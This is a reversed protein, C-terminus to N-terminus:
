TAQVPDPTVSEKIGRLQNTKRKGEAWLFIEARRTPSLKDKAQIYQYYLKDKPIPEGPKVFKVEAPSSLTDGDIVDLYHMGFLEFFQSQDRQPSAPRDYWVIVVRAKDDTAIRMEM